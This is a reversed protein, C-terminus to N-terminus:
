LFSSPASKRAWQERWQESGQRDLAMKEARWRRMLATKKETVSMLRGQRSSLRAARPFERRQSQNQLPLAFRMESLALFQSSTRGVIRRNRPPRREDDEFRVVSM